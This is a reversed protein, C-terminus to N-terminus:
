IAHQRAGRGRRAARVRDDFGKLVLRLARIHFIDGAAQAAQLVAVLRERDAASEEGSHTRIAQPHHPRTKLQSNIKRETSRTESRGTERALPQASTM